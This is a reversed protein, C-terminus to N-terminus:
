FVLTNAPLRLSVPVDTLQLAALGLALLGFDFKITSYETKLIGNKPNLITL